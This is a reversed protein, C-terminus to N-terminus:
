GNQSTSPEVVGAKMNTVLALFFDWDQESLKGPFEIVVPADAPFTPLPLSIMVAGPRRERAARRQPHHERHVDDTEELDALESDDDEELDEEPGPVRDDDVSDTASLKAFAITERYTRVFTSFGDEAFPGKVVYEWELVDDPPLDESYKGWWERFIDPALAARKIAAERNPNPVLIEVALDTLNAVRDNGKGKDELLGYRKLAAYTVSAPGTTASRYGWYDVVIKKTPVPHTKIEAYVKRAREIAKPLSIGPFNPSRKRPVGSATADTTTDADTV